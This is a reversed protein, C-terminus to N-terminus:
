ATRTMRAVILAVPIGFFLLHTILAFGFDAPTPQTFLNGAVLVLQMAFYVVLGFALGSRIPLTVLQPQREAMYAYGIGWGISVFLHLLAGLPAYSASTFAVKGVLVSADFQFLPVLDFATAAHTTAYTLLVSSAQILIAGVLGAVLGAVISRRRPFVNTM